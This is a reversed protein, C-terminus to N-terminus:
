IVGKTSPVSKGKKAVARALALGLAKFISEAMHHDNEGYFRVHLTLRGKDAMAELFPKIQQVELDGIREGRFEGTFVLYPRGSFDLAVDALAEDMPVSASGYRAIGSRDALVNDLAQGIAAGLAETKFFGPEAKATLDLLATRALANLMHDLFGSGSNIKAKGSGDLDLSASAICGRFQANAESKRM